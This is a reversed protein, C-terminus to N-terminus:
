EEAGGAANGQGKGQGSGAPQAKGTAEALLAAMRAADEVPKVAMGPVAITPSTIVLQEGAALGETVVALDGMTYGIVLKRRELTGEETVVLGAGDRVAEAPVALAQTEPAMLLVEVFMNRRLPPRQGAVAEGLPDDVRVVVAASQTRSDIADGVRDVVAKWVVNHGPASLRVRAKLDMVTMGGGALRLLPGIGGMPFQAAVEVAEIGEGEVLTQGRSVYQGVSASVGTIRLDYPARLEAFGLAREVSAKQAVLVAREAEALRRQNNIETAKSRATLEQRKSADLSARPAVGQEVLQEQRALEARMLELDAEAIEQSAALTADKVDAAALQANTQALDLRLDTDDIALLLEGAAVLVGAALGNRLDAVEGEIRAVARWQMAPSVTGYGSIRPVIAVPEVTIVRVPQALRNVDSVAPPRQLSGSYVVSAAGLAAPFLFALGRGLVTGFNAM